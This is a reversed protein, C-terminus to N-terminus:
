GAQHAFYEASPLYGAARGAAAWDAELPADGIVLVGSSPLRQSHILGQVRDRMQAWSDSLHPARDAAALARNAALVAQPTAPPHVLSLRAAAAVQTVIQAEAEPIEGGSGFIRLANSSFLLGLIDQGSYQRVKAYTRYTMGLEAARRMRMRLVLMPIAEPMLAKQAQRWAHTRWLRGHEMSPGGNHGIGAM